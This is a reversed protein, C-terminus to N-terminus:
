AAKARQAGSIISEAKLLADVAARIVYLGVLEISGDSGMMAVSPSGHSQDLAVFLGEGDAPSCPADMGFLHADLPKATDFITRAAPM